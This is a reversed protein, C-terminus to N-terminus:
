KKRLVLYLGIGAAALMWPQVSMGQGQVKYGAPLQTLPALGNAARTKNLQSLALAVATQSVAPSVTDWLSSWWSGGGSELQPGSNGDGLSSWDFNSADSSTSDGSIVDTFDWGMSRRTNLLCPITKINM